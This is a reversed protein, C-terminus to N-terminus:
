KKLKSGAVYATGHINFNQHKTQGYVRINDVWDPRIFHSFEAHLDDAISRVFWDNKVQNDLALLVSDCSLTTAVAKAARMLFQYHTQMARRSIKDGRRAKEAIESAKIEDLPIEIGGEEQIYHQYVVQLGRGSAVDEYEPAHTGDYRHDSIYQILKHEAHYGPFREMNMPIQLHGLETALVHPEPSLMTRMIMGIGLGSGCALVATRKNSVLPGAPSSKPWLPSFYDELNGEINAAIIGYCGAELDNMLLSSGNPFLKKPLERLTLTRDDTKGKWNTMVVSDKEIPGAVAMASGVSQFGEVAKTALDQIYELAAVCEATTQAKFHPVDIHQEPNLANNLRVRFGSGGVDCGVTVDIKGNVKWNSLPNFFTSSLSASSPNLM